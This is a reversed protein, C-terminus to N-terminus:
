QCFSYFFTNFLFQTSNPNSLWQKIKLRANSLTFQVLTPLTDNNAYQKSKFIKNLFNKKENQIFRKSFISNTLNQANNSLRVVIVGSRIQIKFRAWYNRENRAPFRCRSNKKGLMNVFFEVFISQTSPKTNHKSMMLTNKLWIQSLELTSLWPFNTKTWTTLTNRRLFTKDWIQLRWNSHSEFGSNQRETTDDRHDSYWQVM